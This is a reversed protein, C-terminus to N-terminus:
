KCLPLEINFIFGTSNTSLDINCHSLIDMGLLIDFNNKNPMVGVEVYVYRSHNLLTININTLKISNSMNNGVTMTGTNTSNLKLSSFINDSIFTIDAGTDILCKVLKQNFNNDFIIIDIIIKEGKKFNM